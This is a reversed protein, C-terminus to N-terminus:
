MTRGARLARSIQMSTTANQIQIIINPKYCLEKATKLAQRKEINLARKYDLTRAEM